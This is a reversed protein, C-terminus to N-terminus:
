LGSLQLEASMSLSSSFSDGKQLQAILTQLGQSGAKKYWRQVAQRAVSYAPLRARIASVWQKQSVLDKLPLTVDTKKYQPDNCALVALGEDFWMPVRNWSKASGLRKHFEVHALEHTLTAKDLGDSSLLVTHDGIAKARAPIGGFQNFCTKTVCAYIRPNSRMGGFFHSIEHKSQKVMQLFQQRLAETMSSDICINNQICHMGPMHGFGSEPSKHVSKRNPKQKTSKKYSKIHNHTQNQASKQEKRSSTTQSCATLMSLSVFLLVYLNKM